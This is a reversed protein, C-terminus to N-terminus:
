GIFSAWEQHTVSIISSSIFATRLTM